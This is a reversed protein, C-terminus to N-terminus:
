LASKKEISGTPVIYWTFRDWILYYYEDHFNNESFEKVFNIENELLFSRYFFGIVRKDPFLTNIASAYDAINEPTLEISKPLSIGTIDRGKRSRRYVKLWSKVVEIKKKDKSTSYIKIIQNM